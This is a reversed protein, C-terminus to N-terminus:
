LNGIIADAIAASIRDQHDANDLISAEWSNSLFGCEVLVAPCSTRVLVRYDQGQIGNSKIGSSSMANEISRALRRSAESPSRAIYVTFGQRSPNPNSDCHLAVFLDAGANNAVDARDNLEIFTDGQRTM